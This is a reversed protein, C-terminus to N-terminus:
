GFVGSFLDAIWKAIVGFLSLDNGGFILMWNQITGSYVVAAVGVLLVMVFSSVITGIIAGRMGGQGEGVVAAGGMEFFATVVLPIIIIGFVNFSNAIIILITSTVMAILFGIIVANPKYNFLIPVDLAPKSGPILKESIGQFAPIIQNILLRVGYLMILLGAGFTLGQNIGLFISSQGEVLIEPIVIAVVIYMTFLVIAGTVSIERFFSLGKPVNLNETSNEKNGVRKAVEGSIISLIGTPHGILFSDDETVAWVYKRMIWPMISWYLASFLAGFVVLKVGTLGAEVGAAVFIFPFWWLMHGTLFITKIKTFRAILLHFILGIFMALGVDGGYSSTFTEANLADPVSEAGTIAQQFATNIPAITGAIMGVGTDLILMGFAAIFAGKIVEAINKRQVILGLAAILGLLVPPNRLINETIFTLM